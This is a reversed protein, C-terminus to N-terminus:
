SNKNTQREFKNYSIFKYITDDPGKLGVVRLHETYGGFWKKVKKM